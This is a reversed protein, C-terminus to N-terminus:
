VDGDVQFKDFLELRSPKPLRRTEAGGGSAQRKKAELNEQWGASCPLILSPETFANSGALPSRRERARTPLQSKAHANRAKALQGFFSGTSLNCAAPRVLTSKGCIVTGPLSWPLCCCVLTQYEKPSM